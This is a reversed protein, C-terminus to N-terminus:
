CFCYPFLFSIFRGRTSTFFQLLVGGSSVDDCVGMLGVSDYHWHSWRWLLSFVLGKLFHLFEVQARMTLIFMTGFLLWLADAEGPRLEHISRGGV